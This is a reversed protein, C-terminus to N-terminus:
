RHRLLFLSVRVKSCVDITRTTGIAQLSVRLAGSDNLVLRSSLTRRGSTRFGTVSTREFKPDIPICSNRNRQCQLSSRDARCMKGCTPCSQDPLDSFLPMPLGVYEEDM